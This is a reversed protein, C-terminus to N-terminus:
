SKGYDEPQWYNEPCIDGEEVIFIDQFMRDASFEEQVKYVSNYELHEIMIGKRGTSEQFVIDGIDLLDRIGTNVRM